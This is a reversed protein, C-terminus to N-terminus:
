VIRESGVCSPGGRRLYEGFPPTALFPVAPEGCQQFPLQAQPSSLQLFLEHPEVLPRREVETLVSFLHKLMVNKESQKLCNQVSLFYYDPKLFTCTLCCWLVHMMSYTYMISIFKFCRNCVAQSKNALDGKGGAEKEAVEVGGGGGGGGAQAGEEGVDGGGREEGAGADGAGEAESASRVRGFLPRAVEVM